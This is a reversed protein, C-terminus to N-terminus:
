RRAIWAPSRAARELTHRLQRRSRSRRMCPRVRAPLWCIGGCTKGSIACPRNSTSARWASSSGVLPRFIQLLQVTEQQILRHLAQDHELNSNKLSPLITTLARAKPEVKPINTIVTLAKLLTDCPEPKTKLSLVGNSGHLCVTVVNKRSEVRDLQSLPIKRLSQKWEVSIFEFCQPSTIIHVKIARRDPLDIM